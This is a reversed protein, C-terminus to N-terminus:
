PVVRILKHFPWGKKLRQLLTQYKVGSSRSLQAVTQQTGNPLYIFKNYRVNNMQERATSWKCNGPEYNGNTDKRDLSHQKTPSRGVDALFHEYSKLWRDCVTIGRGGYIRYKTETTRYCRAKMGLWARYEKSGNGEGHTRQFSGRLANRICGCSKTNGTRLSSAYVLSKNGCDCLCYWRLFKGTNPGQSQVTLKGFRQGTLDHKRM